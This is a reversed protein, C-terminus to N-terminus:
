VRCTDKVLNRYDTILWECREADLAVADVREVLRNHICSTVRRAEHCASSDLDLLTLSEQPDDCLRLPLCYM